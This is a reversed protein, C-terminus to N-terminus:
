GAGNVKHAELFAELDSRKIRYERDPSDAPAEPHRGKRSDLFAQLDEESVRYAAGYYVNPLEGSRVYRRATRESIGLRHAVESLKLTNGM